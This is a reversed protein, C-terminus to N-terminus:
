KILSIKSPKELIALWKSSVVIKYLENSLVEGCFDFSSCLLWVLRPSTPDQTNSIEVNTDPWGNIAWCFNYLHGCLRAREHQRGSARKERAIPCVPAPISYKGGGNAM